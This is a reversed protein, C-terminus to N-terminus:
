FNFKKLNKLEGWNDGVKIEVELPVKLKVVSEMIKKIEKAIKLVKEEKIEFLLEDHIQL